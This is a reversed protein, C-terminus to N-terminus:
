TAKLINMRRLISRPIALAEDLSIVKLLIIAIGYIIAGGAIAIVLGLITSQATLVVWVGMVASALLCRGMASVDFLDTFLMETKRWLSYFIYVFTVLTILGAGNYSLLPIAVLNALINFVAARLYINRLVQPRGQAYFIYQLATGLSDLAVGLAILGILLGGQSFDKTALLELLSNGVLSLGIVGPILTLSMFRTSHKVTQQAGKPDNAKWREGLAPLLSYLYPWGLAVLIMTFQYSAAYIAVASSTALISLLLRDGYTVLWNAQGAISLNLGHITLQKIIPLSLRTIKIGRYAVILQILSLTIQTGSYLVAFSLLDKQLFAIYATVLRTIAIVIDFSAGIFPKQRLRYLQSALLNLSSSLITISAISFISPAIANRTTLMNLIPALIILLVTLSSGLTVFAYLANSYVTNPDNKQEVIMVGIANGLGLVGFSILLSSITSVEIWVGYTIIDFARVMLPFTLIPLGYNILQALTVVLVTKKYM